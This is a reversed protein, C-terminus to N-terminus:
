KTVGAAREKKPKDKKDEEKEGKAKRKSKKETYEPSVPNWDAANQKREIASAYEAASHKGHTRSLWAGLAWPDEVVKPDKGGKGPAHGKYFNQLNEYASM